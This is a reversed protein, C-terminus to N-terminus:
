HVIIVLNLGKVIDLLLCDSFGLCKVSRTERLEAGEHFLSELGLVVTIVTKLVYLYVIASADEKGRQSCLGGGTVFIPYEWHLLNVQVRYRQLM